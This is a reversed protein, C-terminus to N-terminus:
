LRNCPDSEVRAVLLSATYDDWREVDCDTGKRRPQLLLRDLRAELSYTLMSGGVTMKSWAAFCFLYVPSENVSLGCENLSLPYSASCWITSRRSGASRRRDKGRLLEHLRASLTPHERKSREASERHFAIVASFPGTPAHVRPAIDAIPIRRRLGYAGLCTLAM